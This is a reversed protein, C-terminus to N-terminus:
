RTFIEDKKNQNCDNCALVLNSIHNSGGKSRPIFHDLTAESLRRFPRTCYNCKMGDRKAIRVKRRKKRAAGSNNSARLVKRVGEPNEKASQKPETKKAVDLAPRVKEPKVPSERSRDRTTKPVGINGRVLWKANRWDSGELCRNSIALDKVRRSM